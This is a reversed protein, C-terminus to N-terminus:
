FGPELIEGTSADVAPAQMDSPDDVNGSVVVRNEPLVLPEANANEAVEMAVANDQDQAMANAFEVSMVGYKSLLQRLVTKCAMADFDTQWPGNGFAKSYKKGHAEAKERTWYVAKKFGNLLEFYAFYGIAKDSTANGEITLTGTVRNFVPNEGEFVCDANIARYMGTRQALQILGRYGLIFTPTMEGKVRYPLIYAFGLSKNVPLRLSAAKMAEAMVKNPDCQVLYNDSTYLELVTSLFTGPAEGLTSQLREKLSVNDIISKMNKINTQAPLNAM